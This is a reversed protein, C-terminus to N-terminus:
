HALAPEIGSLGLAGILLRDRLRAPIRALWVAQRADPGATYYAKPRRAEVAKRIVTVVKEVPSFRQGAVAKEFAIRQQEYLAVSRPDSHALAAEAAANAKDFITTRMAGPQIVSVPIRWPALEVRLADSISELAAKSAAIPGLFPLAVRASAASINVIRGGGERLAPLFAQTVRVAGHVNVEFQRQWEQPPVLEAPGQILVGANNILAYLGAGDQRKVVETAATAVSDPDTVDLPIQTIGTADLAPTAARVGAYVHFGKDALAQACATGIGGSAGTLLIARPPTATTM